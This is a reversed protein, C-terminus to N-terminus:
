PPARPPPPAGAGASVASGSSSRSSSSSKRLRIRSTQARAGPSESTIVRSVGPSRNHLIGTSCERGHRLVKHDDLRRCLRPRDLAVQAVVVSDEGGVTMDTVEWLVGALALEPHIDIM